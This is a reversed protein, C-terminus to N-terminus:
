NKLDAISGPVSTVMADVNTKQYTRLKHYLDSQYAVLTRNMYGPDILEPQMLDCMAEDLRFRLHEISDSPINIYILQIIEEGTTCQTDGVKRQRKRLHQLLRHTKRKSKEMTFFNDGYFTLAEM